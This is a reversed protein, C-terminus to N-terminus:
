DGSFFILAVSCICIGKGANSTKAQFQLLTENEPFTLQDNITYITHTTGAIQTNLSAYIFGTSQNVIKFSGKSSDNYQMHAVIKIYQVNGLKVTGSFVIDSITQWSTTKIVLAGIQDSSTYGYHIEKTSLKYKDSINIWNYATGDQSELYTNGSPGIPFDPHYDLNHFRPAAKYESLLKTHQLADEKSLDNEGDNIILDENEILENLYFSTNIVDLGFFNTLILEGNAPVTVGNLDTIQINATSDNKAIIISSM